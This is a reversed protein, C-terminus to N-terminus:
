RLHVVDGSTVSARSGDELELVLAGSSDIDLATGTLERDPMIVRVSTGLTDSLDRWADLMRDAGGELLDEYVRELEGLM